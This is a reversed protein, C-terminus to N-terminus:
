CGALGEAAKACGTISTLVGGRGPWRGQGKGRGRVLHVKRSPLSSVDGSPYPSSSVLSTFYSPPLPQSRTLKGAAGRPKLSSQQQAGHQSGAGSLLRATPVLFM